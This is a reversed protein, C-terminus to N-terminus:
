PDGQLIINALNASIEYSFLMTKKVYVSASLLISLYIVKSTPLINVKVLISVENIM